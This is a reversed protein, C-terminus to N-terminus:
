RRIEPNAEKVMTAFLDFLEFSAEEATKMNQIVEDRTKKSVCTKSGICGLTNLINTHVAAHPAEIAKYARTNGFLEKAEETNYWQGLRCSTHDSFSSVAAENEHFITIYADHKFIIHDVKALSTFLSNHIFKSESASINANTAFSTLTDYFKSVNEQSDVAISTIRESNSQIESAEQKLTNTTIAIEQTAKQTREALKRVEDAVVAFGRGHEGARAAEIAANLALLNTQDAIDKILDVVATIDNTRETLSSISENSNNILTTLEELKDNINQVIEKSDTAEKSTEETRQAIKVVTDLNEQIDDQIITLGRSVGGDSNEEFIQSLEKSQASKYSESISKIAENLTPISTAFDGKYGRFPVIRNSHGANASEVSSKTDRIYQEVQDLLDNVGWAVGQMAHTESIHTIRSSLEGNGAKVLVDRIQRLLPDNFVKEGEANDTLSIFLTAVLLGLVVGAVVLNGLIAFYVVAMLGLVYLALTQKTKYVSSLIM